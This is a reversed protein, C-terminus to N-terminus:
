KIPQLFELNVKGMDNPYRAKVVDKSLMVSDGNERKFRIRGANSTSEYILKEGKVLTLRDSGCFENTYANITKIVEFTDTKADKILMSRDSQSQKIEINASLITGEVPSTIEEVSKHTRNDKVGNLANKIKELIQDKPLNDYEHGIEINISVKNPFDM